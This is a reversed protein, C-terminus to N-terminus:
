FLLSALMCRYSTLGSALSRPNPPSPSFPSPPPPPPLSPFSAFSLSCSLSLSITGLFPHLPLALVLALIRTLIRTLTPVFTLTYPTLDSPHPPPSHVEKLTELLRRRFGKNSNGQLEVIRIVLEDCKERNHCLPLETNLITLLQTARSGGGAEEEDGGGDEEGEEGGEEEGDEEGDEGGEDADEGGEDGELGGEEDGEDAEQANREKLMDAQEQSLGLVSAPVTALLDPLDEYFARTEEDDYAGGGEVFAAGANTWLTLGDGEDEEEDEEEEDIPPPGDRDLTDALAAVNNWLKEHAKRAEEMKAKKEDNVTGHMVEDKEFRAEMKKLEKQSEALFAVLTNHAEELIGRMTSRTEETCLDSGGGEPATGDGGGDEGGGGSGGDVDDDGKAEAEGGGGGGGGGSGRGTPDADLEGKRKVATQQKRPVVGLLEESCVKAIQVVLSPDMAFRGDVPRPKGGQYRCAKRLARVVLPVDRHVGVLLLETLLRCANRRRKALDKESWVTGDNERETTSEDNISLEALAQVLVKTFDDDKYKKHMSMIFSVTPKVNAAKLNILAENCHLGGVIESVYMFLNLGEIDKQLSPLEKEVM